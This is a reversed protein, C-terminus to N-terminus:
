EREGTIRECFFFLREFTPLHGPLQGFAAAQLKSDIQRLVHVDGEAFLLAGRKTLHELNYDYQISSCSTRTHIQIYRGHAKKAAAAGYHTAISYCHQQQQQEDDHAPHYFINSHNMADSVPTKRRKMWIRNIKLTGRLCYRRM